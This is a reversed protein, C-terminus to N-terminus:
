RAVKLKARIYGSHPVYLLDAIKRIYYEEYKDLANDAYAVRWLNEIIGIKDDMEFRENLLHTFDYLSTARDVEKEALEILEEIEREAIDFNDLLLAKILRREEDQFHSDALGIEIMLVATALEITYTTGATDEDGGFLEEFYKRIPTLM